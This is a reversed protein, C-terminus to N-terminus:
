RKEAGIISMLADHWQIPRNKEAQIIPFCESYPVAVKSINLEDAGVRQKM